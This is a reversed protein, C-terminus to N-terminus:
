YVDGWGDFSVALYGPWDFVDCGWDRGTSKGAARVLPSGMAVSATLGGLFGRRDLKM